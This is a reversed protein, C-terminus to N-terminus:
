PCLHSTRRHWCWPAPWCMWPVAQTSPAASLEECANTAAYDTTDLEKHGCPRYGVLSRQGNSKGPLFAPTPQLPPQPSRGSGPISSTDGINAPPSKIASGGPFGRVPVLGQSKACCGQSCLSQRRLDLEARQTSSRVCLRWGSPPGRRHGPPPKTRQTGVRMAGWGCRPACFGMHLPLTAALSPCLFPLHCALISLRCKRVGLALAM